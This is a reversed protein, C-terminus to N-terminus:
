GGVGLQGFIGMFTGQHNTIMKFRIAVVDEEAIEKDVVDVEGRNMVIEPIHRFKLKQSAKKKGKEFTETFTRLGAEFNQTDSM